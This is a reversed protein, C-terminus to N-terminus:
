KSLPKTQKSRRLSRIRRLLAKPAHFAVLVIGIAGSLLLSIAVMFLRAVEPPQQAIFMM